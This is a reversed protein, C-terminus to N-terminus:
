FRDARGAATWPDTPAEPRPRRTEGVVESLRGALTWPDIRPQPEGDGGSGEREAELDAALAALIAAAEELTLEV